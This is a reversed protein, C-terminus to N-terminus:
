VHTPEEEIKGKIVFWVILLILAIVLPLDLKRFVEFVIFWYEGLIVGFYTLAFNWPISGIFTYIIFKKLDMKGLGAPLSIFTRIAPLMRSFFVIKNGHRLFLKEAIHLHRKDVLFYKGWKLIAKRGCRLGIYYAILSGILNGISGALVVIWFDLLGCYTLYGALPMIIESPIPICASELTMLFLVGWYSSKELLTEVLNILAIIIKTEPLHINFLYVLIIGITLTLTILIAFVYDIECMKRKM